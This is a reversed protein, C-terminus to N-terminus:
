LMQRNGSCGPEQQPCPSKTRLPQDDLILHVNGALLPAVGAAKVLNWNRKQDPQIEYRGQGM